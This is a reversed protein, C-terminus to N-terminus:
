SPPNKREPSLSPYPAPRQTPIPRPSLNHALAIVVFHQAHRAIRVIVGDFARVPAQRALIVRVYVLRGIGLFAELLDVFRVFDKAISIAAGRIVSVAVRAGLSERPAGASETSGAERAEVVDELLEETAKAPHAAGGRLPARGSTRIQAVVQLNSELLRNEPRLFLDLDDPLLQAWGAVAGARLRAGFGDPARLTVAGTLDTARLL